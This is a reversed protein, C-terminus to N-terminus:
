LYKKKLLILGFFMKVPDIFLSVKSLNKHNWIVPLEFIKIKRKKLRLVIEIDHEFRPRTLRNFVKKAIPTPYLKFGCQTDKITINLMINIILRMLFGMMQRFIKTKVKSSNHARSGFFVKNNFNTNLFKNEWIKIQNLSVSMDIDATLSFKNVAYKLGESIAGGKGINKKLNIINLRFNYKTIFNNKFESLIKKTNDFSGDNVIIIQIKKNRNDLIFKKIHKLGNKLRKEENFIPFIISLSNIM